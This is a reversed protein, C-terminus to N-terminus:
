SLAARAQAINVALRARNEPTFTAADWADGYELLTKTLVRERDRPSLGKLRGRVVAPRDSADSEILDLLLLAGTKNIEFETM